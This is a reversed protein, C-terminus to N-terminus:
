DVQTHTVNTHTLMFLYSETPPSQTLAQVHRMRISGRENMIKIVNSFAYSKFHM